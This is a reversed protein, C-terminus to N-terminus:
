KGEPEEDVPEREQRLQWKSNSMRSAVIFSNIEGHTLGNEKATTALINGVARIITNFDLMSLDFGPWQNCAAEVTLESRDASLWYQDLQLLIYNCDAWSCEVDKIAMTFQYGFDAQLAHVEHIRKDIFM